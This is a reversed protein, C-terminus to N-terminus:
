HMQWSPNNINFHVFGTADGGGTTEAIVIKFRILQLLGATAGDWFNKGAEWETRGVATRAGTMAFERTGGDAAEDSEEDTKTQVTVLISAGQVNLVDLVITALNGAANTWPTYYTESGGNNAFLTHGIIM